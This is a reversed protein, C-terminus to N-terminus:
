DSKWGGVLAPVEMWGSPSPGEESYCGAGRLKFTEWISCMERGELSPDKGAYELKSREGALNSLTISEVM